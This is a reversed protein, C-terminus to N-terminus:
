QFVFDGLDEGAHAHQDEEDSAADTLTQLDPCFEAVVDRRITHCMLYMLWASLAHLHMGNGQLARQSATSLSHLNFPVAQKYGSNCVTSISPWGMAFAMERQTFLHGGRPHGLKLMAAMMGRTQTPMWPSERPRKLPNQTLDCILSGSREGAKSPLLALYDRLRQQAKGSFIDVLKDKEGIDTIGAHRAQHVLTQEIEEKTDIEAFIDADVVVHKSIFSLFHEKVADPAPGIWVLSERNLAAAYLRKRKAPWGLHEPGFIASIVNSSPSMSDVFLHLPMLPSNEMAVVDYNMVSMEALWIYFDPISPHGLGLGSGFASWPLCVPGSVNVTLPRERSSSGDPDQWALPCLSTSHALCKVLMGRKFTKFKREELLDRIQMHAEIKDDNPADMAPFLDEIEAQLGLPLRSRLDPMLHETRPQSGLIIRRCVRDIDCCRWPVLWYWPKGERQPIRLGRAVMATCMMRLAVEPCQKGSFDTHLIVGMGVFSELRAARAMSLAPAEGCKRGLLDDLLMDPWASFAEISSPGDPLHSHKTHYSSTGGRRQAGGAQCPDDSVDQGVVVGRGLAFARWKRRQSLSFM